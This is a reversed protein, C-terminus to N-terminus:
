KKEYKSTINNYSIKILNEIEKVNSTETCFIQINGNGLKGINSVDRTFGEKLTIERKLITVTINIKSAKFNFDAFHRNYVKFGTYHKTEVKEIANPNLAAIFSELGKYIAKM